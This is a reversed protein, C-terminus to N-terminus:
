AGGQYSDALKSLKEYDRKWKEWRLILYVNLSISVGLACLLFYFEDETM